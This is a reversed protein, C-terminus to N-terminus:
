ASQGLAKDNRQIESHETDYNSFTMISITKIGLSIIRIAMISFTTIRLTVTSLTM